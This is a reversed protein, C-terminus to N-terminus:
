SNYYLCTSPILHVNFMSKRFLNREARLLARRLDRFERPPNVFTTLWTGDRKTGLIAGFSFLRSPHWLWTCSPAQIDSIATKSRMHWEPTKQGVCSTCLMGIGIRMSLLPQHIAHNVTCIALEDHLPENMLSPQEKTTPFSSRRQIGLKIEGTRCLRPM